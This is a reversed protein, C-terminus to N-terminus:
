GEYLWIRTTDSTFHPRGADSLTSVFNAAGGTAPIWVLDTIVLAPNIEDNLIARQTRPARNAVIRSGTPSYMINDYFASQTTLKEPRGGAAPVRWIDGGDETWSVYAIYKGDPSWVPAHEGDTSTTVRRPTGAPLDMTWLRDLASFVLRKGDPSPRAGRIQRVTLVSDNVPYTFRVLEGIMQDVDATFPIPTEKGTAIDLSWIKGHHALVIAKSDATWSYGPLLDRSGRSEIDDRQIAESVWREDGSALDRVKLGTVAMRRSAYALSKGDPSVAPRFGTGLNLTRTALRGTSRDYMVVQTTGLMQNYGAAGTRASAYVYRGDPSVSAGMFNTPAAGGGGGGAAPPTQGTLRLGSGGNKHYLWLDNSRSVVVYQGDPTWDPSVFAQNAGRTLPRLNTGNPDILWLNESGTRDSVFVISKGDPAFRPQGDFPSGSTLRTAKGGTAPITYIDGLLDFVITRGDPSLDLSLWTGEDTTFKLPRTPVLPLDGNPPVRRTTDTSTQADLHTGVLPAVLSAVLACALTTKM